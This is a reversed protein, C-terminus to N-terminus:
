ILNFVKEYSLVHGVQAQAKRDSVGIGHFYKPLTFIKEKPLKSYNPIALDSLKPNSDNTTVLHNLRHYNKWM